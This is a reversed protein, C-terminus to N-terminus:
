STRCRLFRFFHYAPRSSQLLRCIRQFDPYGQHNRGHKTVFEEQHCAWGLLRYTSSSFSPFPPCVILLGETACLAANKGRGYSVGFEDLVAAFSQLLASMSEISIVQAVM